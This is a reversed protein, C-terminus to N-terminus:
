RSLCLSFGFRGRAAQHTAESVQQKAAGARSTSLAVTHRLHLHFTRNSGHARGQASFDNTPHQAAQHTAALSFSRQILVFATERWWM